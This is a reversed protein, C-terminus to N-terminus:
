ELHYSKISGYITLPRAQRDWGSGGACILQELWEDIWEYKKLLFRKKIASEKWRWFYLWCVLFLITKSLVMWKWGLGQIFEQSKGTVELDLYNWVYLRFFALFPRLIYKFQLYLNFIMQFILQFQIMCKWLCYKSQKLMNGIYVNM